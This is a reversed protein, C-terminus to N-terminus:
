KLELNASRRFHDTLVAGMSKNELFASKRLWEHENETLMVCLRHVEQGPELRKKIVQRQVPTRAM